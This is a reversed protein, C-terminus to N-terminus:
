RRSAPVRGFSRDRTCFETLSALLEAERFAPWPVETFYLEAHALQWILFNSIRLEGGTRVYFDVPPIDPHYGFRSAPSNWDISDDEFQSRCEYIEQRGGYNFCFQLTLGTNGATREELGHFFDVVSAELNNTTGAWTFRVQDRMFSPELHTLARQVLDIIYQIEATNRGWNEPSFAHISFYQVGLERLVKLCAVFSRIGEEHGVSRKLGQTTAWRGNGDATLAFHRLKGNAVSQRILDYDAASTVDSM